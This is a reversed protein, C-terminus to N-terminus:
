PNGKPGQIREYAEIISGTKRAAEERVWEPSGLVKDPHYKLVAKRYAEHIEAPSAGKSLGLVKYPDDKESPRAKERVVVTRDVYMVKPLEFEPAPPDEEDVTRVESRKGNPVFFLSGACSMSVVVSAILGGDLMGYPTMDPRFYFLFPVFLVPLCAGPFAWGWRQFRRVFLAAAVMAISLFISVSAFAFMWLPSFFAKDSVIFAHGESTYDPFSWGMEAREGSFRRVHGTGDARIDLNMGEASSISFSVSARSMDAKVDQYHKLSAGNSPDYAPLHFPKLYPLYEFERKSRQDTYEFHSAMRVWSTFAGTVSRLMFGTLNIDSGGNLVSLFIDEDETGRSTLNRFMNALLPDSVNRVDVRPNGQMDEGPPDGLSWWMWFRVDGDWPSSMTVELGISIVPIMIPDAEVRIPVSSSMFLALVLVALPAASFGRSRTL